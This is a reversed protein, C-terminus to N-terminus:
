KGLTLLFDGGWAILNGTNCGGVIGEGQFSITHNGPELIGLDIPGTVKPLSPDANYGLFQTTAVLQGDVFVHLRLSSCQQSPVFHEAYLRARRPVEVPISIEPSCLQGQTTCFTDLYDEFLVEGDISGGGGVREIVVALDPQCSGSSILDSALQYNLPIHFLGNVLCVTERRAPKKIRWAQDGNCTYPYDGLSGNVNRFFAEVPVYSRPILLYTGFSGIKANCVYNEKGLRTIIVGLKGFGCHNPKTGSIVYENSFILYGSFPCVTAEKGAKEILLLTKDQNQGCTNDRTGTIVYGAPLPEGDCIRTKNQASADQTCSFFIVAFSLAAFASFFSRQKFSYFM